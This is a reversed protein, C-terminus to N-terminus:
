DVYYFRCGALSKREGSCVAPINNPACGVALAAERISNFVMISNNQFIVKIKRPWVRRNREATNEGSEELQINAFFYGKSHDLRSVSPIHWFTRKVIEKLWWNIFDRSSYHVKLNKGSRGSACRKRQSTWSRYARQVEFPMKKPVLPGKYDEMPNDSLGGLSGVGAAIHTMPRM